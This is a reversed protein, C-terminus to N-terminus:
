KLTSELFSVTQAWADSSEEPAYRDGSSNAFAHDVNDYVHIHTEM